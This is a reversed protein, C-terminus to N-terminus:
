QEAQKFVLWGEDDINSWVLGFLNSTRGHVTSLVVLDGRTNRRLYNTIRVRTHNGESGSESFRSVKLWGQECTFDGTEWNTVYDGIIIKAQLKDGDAFSLYTHRKEQKSFRLNQSPYSIGLIYRLSSVFSECRGAVCEGATMYRGTLQSCSDDVLFEGVSPPNDLPENGMACASFAMLFVWLHVIRLRM